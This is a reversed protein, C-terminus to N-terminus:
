AIIVQATSCNIDLTVGFVSNLQIKKLIIWMRSLNILPISHTHIVLLSIRSHIYNVHLMVCLFLM